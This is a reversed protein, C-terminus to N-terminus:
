QYIGRPNNHINKDYVYVTRKARSAGVYLMRRLQNIDRSSFIDDMIMIVADYTSGQAKYVTAAERNRLDIFKEQVKYFVRWDKHKKYHALLALFEGRHAPAQVIHRGGMASSVDLRYVELENGYEDVKVVEPKEVAHIQIEEEVQFSATRSLQHHTNCILFEGPTPHEPLGRLGRIYQNYGIVTNNTYALIRCALTEDSEKIPGNPGYMTDILNQLEPGDVHIIEGPSQRWHTLSDKPVENLIDMRLRNCLDMLAPSDANRVPTRIEYHLNPNNALMVAPSLKEMVPPLQNKDGIYIIKCSDDTAEHILIHLNKDIMSAEDVIIVKNSHVQWKNTKSLTTRGTKFDQKPIVGLFSHITTAMLNTEGALVAAAKNTTSTLFIEKVIDRKNMSKNYNDLIVPLIEALERTTFTKGVGPGGTMFFEKEPGVIFASIAQVAKQQDANLAPRNM